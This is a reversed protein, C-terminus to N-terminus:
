NREVFDVIRRALVSFARDADEWIGAQIRNNDLTDVWSDSFEGLAAGAENFAVTFTPFALWKERDGEGARRGGARGDAGTGLPYRAARRARCCRRATPATPGPAWGAPATPGPGGGPGVSPRAGCCRATPTTSHRDPLRVPRGPPPEAALGLAALLRWVAHSETVAGVIRRPGARMKLTFVQRLLTARSLPSSGGPRARGGDAPVM